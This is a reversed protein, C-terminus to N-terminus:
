HAARASQPSEEYILSAKLDVSRKVGSHQSSLHAGGCWMTGSMERRLATPTTVPDKFIM